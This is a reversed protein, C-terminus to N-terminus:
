KIVEFVALLSFTALVVLSLGIWWPMKWTSTDLVCRTSDTPHVRLQLRQGVYPGGPDGDIARVKLTSEVPVGDVHYSVAVSWSPNAYSSQIASSKVKGSIRQWRLEVRLRSLYLAAFVSIVTVVLLKKAIDM